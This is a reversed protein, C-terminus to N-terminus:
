TCTEYFRKTLKREAKFNNLEPAKTDKRCDYVGEVVDPPIVFLRRWSLHPRNRFHATIGGGADCWRCHGFDGTLRLEM